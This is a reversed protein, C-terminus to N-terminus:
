APRVSVGLVRPTLQSDASAVTQVASLSLQPAADRGGCVRTQIMRTAGPPLSVRRQIGNGALALTRVSPVLSDLSVKLAVLACRRPTGRLAYLALTADRDLRLWGDPSVGSLVWAARMPLAVRMLEIASTPSHAVVTGVPQLPYGREPLVVYRPVGASGGPALAGSRRNLSLSTTPLYPDSLSGFGYAGVVSRNWFEDDEWVRLAMDLGGTNEVLQEVSVGGSVSRDVWDANRISGSGFGPGSANGNVVRWLAHVTETVCFAIAVTAVGALLRQAGFRRVLAAVLLGLALVVLGAVLQRSSGPDAAPSASAGFLPRIWDYFSTMGPSAQYWFATRQSEYHTTGVLLALVISGAL